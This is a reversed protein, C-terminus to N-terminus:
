IIRRVSVLISCYYGSSLDSIKVVDGTSSAHIFKGNGIYIGVHSAAKSTNNRFFVLDGPEMQTRSVSVGNSLQSSATRYISYGFHSYIYKTFGSCDFSNPGNAGYVYPRGLFQKAYAVIESGLSTDTAAAAVATVGDGDARAGSSDRVLKTYESSIYGACGAYSVKYWGDSIGSIPVIASGPISVIIGYGTGPGSRMNLNSSGTTIYAYGLNLDAAAMVKLFDGHMYGEITNYDVKYWGNGSDELVVVNSGSSATALINSGIAPASRLRLADATVTGAGLSTGAAGITLLGSLTLSLVATRIQMVPKIM